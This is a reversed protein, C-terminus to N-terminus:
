MRFLRNVKVILTRGSLNPFGPTLTNRDENYVVFLESGPRYEWRWRVNATVSSNSSNYQILASVFMLPTMTRVVRAGMLHTTFRGQELTVRNITYTPEVSLQPTFNMRGRSAGITTKHGNYFTGYDAVVNFSFKRQGAMNFGVAVDDFQYAAVPLTIGKAITFPKPLSELTNLYTVSFRDTNPFEIAFEGWRERTQLRGNGDEIPNVSASYSFKRVARTFTPRPTFRFLAYHRLMDPRRVFGVEPNFNKGVSLREMQVVYRDGPYDVQLRYSTDRDSVGDSKTRAWYTNVALNQFFGFTADAGYTQNSGTGTQRLSRGTFLLGVNSKRLIDRKVRVVSFNTPKTGSVSERGTEIDLAGVVFKGMRGTLRGGGQLPVQTAGNLGIRRSYFLTPTDTNGANGASSVGGFAFTGQNELFFDRKEPFFLSFRTLNVQQDDAEVQAFDTRYTFDATLNQTVGWKVDLGGDKGFDNRIAPTVNLNTTLSSTVFPKIDLNLASSPAELGVVMAGASVQRLGQMGRSKPAPSLFSIENKSKKARLVNFGWVQERGPRYKLSKFPIAAELTWSDPGRGTKLNWVPNWDSSYQQENTVQGDMRGGLPNITFTVNNRRDFYPDFMFALVDNGQFINGSDRRMENAVLRDMQSDLCRVSVYVNDDDFALWVQTQETAPKGDDPEIQIFGSMAEVDRYFAEDLTGDIRLPERVRVARVTARGTADRTLVAPAVPAPPGQAPVATGPRPGGAPAAATQGAAGAPQLCIAALVCLALLARLRRTVCDSM